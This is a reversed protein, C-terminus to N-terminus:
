RSWEGAHLNTGSASGATFKEDPSEWDARRDYVEKSQLKTGPDLNLAGNTKGAVLGAYDVLFTPVAPTGPKDSGAQLQMAQAIPIRVTGDPNTGYSNAEAYQAFIESQRKDWPNGDPTLGLEGTRQGELAVKSYTDTYPDPLLRPEPPIIRETYITPIANDRSNFRKTYFGYMQFVVVMCLFTASAIILLGVIVAHPNADGHEYGSEVSYSQTGQPQIDSM